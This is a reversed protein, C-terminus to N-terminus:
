KILTGTYSYEVEYIDIVTKKKRFTINGFGTTYSLTEKQLIRVSVEHLLVRRSVGYTGRCNLFNREKYPVRLNSAMNVLSRWKNKEQDPNIWKVGDWDIEKHDVKTNDEWTRGNIWTTEKSCTGASFWKGVFYTCMTTDTPRDETAAIDLRNWLVGSVVM